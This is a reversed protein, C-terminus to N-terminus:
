RSDGAGRAVAKGLGNLVQEVTGPGRRRSLIIYRSFAVSRFLDMMNPRSQWQELSGAHASAMVSVGAHTAELVAQVDEQRGIEDTVVVEPSLSRIAMLMGEAKPCADLVDTRPGLQFQPVGDVSGSIESREDIVSVKQPPLGAISGTSLARVLDRLLTTKGCQPPSLILTSHPHRGQERVL